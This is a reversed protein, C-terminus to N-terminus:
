GSCQALIPTLLVGGGGVGHALVAGAHHGGDEQPFWAGLEVWMGGPAETWDWGGGRKQEGVKCPGELRPGVTALAVVLNSQFGTVAGQCVCACVGWAGQELAGGEGPALERWQGTGLLM